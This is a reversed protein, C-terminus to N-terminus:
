SAFYYKSEGNTFLVIKEKVKKNTLDEILDSYIGLQQFHKKSANESTNEDSKYDVVSFNGEKDVILLDVIGEKNYAGSPGLVNAERLLEVNKSSILRKVSEIANEVNKQILDVQDPVKQALAHNKCLLNLKDHRINGDFFVSENIKELVSHIATGINAGFKKSSSLTRTPTQEKHLKSPSLIENKSFDINFIRRKFVEKTDLDYQGELESEEVKIESANSKLVELLSNEKKTNASFILLEEARSCAVYVLRYSEEILSQDYAKKLETIKEVAYKDKAGTVNNSIQIYFNRYAKNNEKFIYQKSKEKFISSTENVIVVKYQLGKAAHITTLTVGAPNTIKAVSKVQNVKVFDNINAKLDSYSDSNHFLDLFVQNIKIENVTPDKNGCIIFIKYISEISYVKLLEWFDKEDFSSNLLGSIMQFKEEHYDSLAIVISNLKIFYSDSTISEKSNVFNPIGKKFLAKALHELAVNKGSLIAIDKPEYGENLLRTVINVTQKTETVRLAEVNKFEEDHLFYQVEKDTVVEGSVDLPDYGQNSLIKSFSNNIFDIIQKSSRFNTSLIKQTKTTDKLQDIFLEVNADRFAYISQKPDGVIGTKCKEELIKILEVQSINTDQFEDVFLYEPIFDFYNKSKKLIHLALPLFDDFEIEGTKISNDCLKILYEYSLKNLYDGIKKNIAEHEKNLLTIYEKNAEKYEGSLHKDGNTFIKQPTNIQSLSFIDLPATSALTDLLQEINELIIYQKEPDHISEAIIKQGRLINTLELIADDSIVLENRLNIDAELYEEQDFYIDWKSSNLHKIFGMIEKSSIKFSALLNINDAHLPNQALGDWWNEFLDSTEVTQVKFKAPLGIEFAKNEIIDLAFSHITSVNIKDIVEHSNKLNNSLLKKFLREKLEAASNETFSIACIKQPDVGKKIILNVIRGVLSTTKGTGAGANIVINDELNNLIFERAEEDIM